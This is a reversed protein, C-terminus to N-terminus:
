TRRMRVYRDVSIVMSVSGTVGSDPLADGKRALDYFVLEEGVDALLEGGVGGLDAGVDLDGAESVLADVGDLVGQAGGFRVVCRLGLDLDLEHRGRQVDERVVTEVLVM